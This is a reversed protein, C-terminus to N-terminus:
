LIAFRFYGFLSISFHNSKGYKQPPYSDNNTKENFTVAVAGEWSMRGIYGLALSVKKGIDRGELITFYDREGNQERYEVKLADSLSIEKGDEKLARVWGEKSRSYVGLVEGKKFTAQPSCGSICRRLTQSNDKQQIDVSKASELVQQQSAVIKEASNEKQFQLIEQRYVESDDGASGGLSQLHSM